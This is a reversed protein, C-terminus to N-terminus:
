SIYQNRLSPLPLCTMIHRPKGPWLCFLQMFETDKHAQSLSNASVTFESNETLPSRVHLPAPHPPALTLMLYAPEPTLLLIPVVGLCQAPPLQRLQICTTVTPCLGQGQPRHQQVALDHPTPIHLSPPCVWGASGQVSHAREPHGQTGRAMCATGTGLALAEWIAGACAGGREQLLVLCSCSIERGRQWRSWGPM